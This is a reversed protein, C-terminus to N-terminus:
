WDLTHINSRRNSATGNGVIHAYKSDADEVNYKGQVHQSFSSAITYSGEAHSTSGYAKTSSGEAHSSGGSAITYSGEAHAGHNGSAKTGSGEAFAFEGLEYDSDEEATGITRIAGTKKGNLINSNFLYKAEIQKIEGHNATFINSTTRLYITTLNRNNSFSFFYIGKEPFTMGSYSINDKKVIIFANSRVIVDETETLDDELIETLNSQILKFYGGILDSTELVIDSVKYYEMTRGVKILGEANVDGDWELIDTM